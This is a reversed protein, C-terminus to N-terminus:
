NALFAVYDLYNIGMVDEFLFDLCFLIYPGVYDQGDKKMHPYSEMVEDLSPLCLRTYEVKNGEEEVTRHYPDASSVGTHPDM